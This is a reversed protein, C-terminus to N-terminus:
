ICRVLDTGWTVLLIPEVRARIIIMGNIFIMTLVPKVHVTPAYVTVEAPKSFDRWDLSFVYVYMYFVTSALRGVQSAPPFHGLRALKTQSPLKLPHGTQACRRGM